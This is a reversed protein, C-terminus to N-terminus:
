PLKARAEILPSHAVDSQLPSVLRFVRSRQLRSCPLAQRRRPLHSNRGDLPTDCKKLHSTPMNHGADSFPLGTTLRPRLAELGCSVIKQPYRPQRFYRVRAAGNRRAQALETM